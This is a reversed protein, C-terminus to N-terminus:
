KSNGTSKSHRRSASISNVEVHVGEAVFGGGFVYIESFYKRIYKYAVNQRYCLHRCIRKCITTV